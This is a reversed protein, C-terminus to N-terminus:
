QAFPPPNRAPPALTGEGDWGVGAGVSAHPRAIMGQAYDFANKFILLGDGTGQNGRRQPHQISLVYREPHPMLGFVNGRANCIGAINGTSGNPNDPYPVPVTVGPMPSHTYLPSAPTPAAQGTLM